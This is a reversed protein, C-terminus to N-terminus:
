AILKGVLQGHRGDSGSGLRGVFPFVSPRRRTVAKSNGAGADFTLKRSETPNRPTEALPRYTDELTM